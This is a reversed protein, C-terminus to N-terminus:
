DGAVHHIALLGTGGGVAAEAALRVGGAGVGAVAAVVGASEGGEVRHALHLVLVAHVAHGVGESDRRGGQALGRLVARRVHRRQQVAVKRLAPLVQIHVHQVPRQEHIGNLVRLVVRLQGDTHAAVRHHEIAQTARLLQLHHRAGEM